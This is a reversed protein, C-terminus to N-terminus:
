GGERASDTLLFVAQSRRSLPVARQSHRKKKSGSLEMKRSPELSPSILALTLTMKWRRKGRAEKGSGGIASHLLGWEAETHRHRTFGARELYSNPATLRRAPLRTTARFFAYLTWLILRGRIRKWGAAPTQFDALLWNGDPTTVAGLRAIIQELQDARFCDLFFHTIVLDYDGGTPTWNLVDAHIFRVCATAMNHRLLQRRAQALMPESADVCTIQANPFRNRCEVLSRGHGEGVLLINRAAPIESLFARRCRQLKEGALIFEMWRYHPALLDFSM